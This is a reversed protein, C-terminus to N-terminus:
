AANTNLTVAALCTPVVRSHTCTHLTDQGLSTRYQVRYQVRYETSQATTHLVSSCLRAARWSAWPAPSHGAGGAPGAPVCAVSGGGATTQREERRKGKARSQQTRRVDCVKKECPRPCGAAWRGSREHISATGPHPSLSLILCMRSPQHTHQTASAPYLPFLLLPM